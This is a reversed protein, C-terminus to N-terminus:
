VRLLSIRCFLLRHLLKDPLIPNFFLLTNTADKQAFLITGFSFLPEAWILAPEDVNFWESQTPYLLWCFCFAFFVVAHVFLNLDHPKACRLLRKPPNSKIFVTNKSLGFVEMRPSPLPIDYNTQSPLRLALFIKSSRFADTIQPNRHRL